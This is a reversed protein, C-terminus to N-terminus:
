NVPIPPVVVALIDPHVHVDMRMALWPLHRNICMGCCHVLHITISRSLLPSSSELLHGNGEPVLDEACRGLGEDVGVASLSCDAWAAAPVM